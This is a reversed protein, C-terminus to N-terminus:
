AHEAKFRARDPSRTQGREIHEQRADTGDQDHDENDLRDECRPKQKLAALSRNVAPRPEAVSQLHIGVVDRWRRSGSVRQGKRCLLVEVRIRNGLEVCPDSDQLSLEHSGASM